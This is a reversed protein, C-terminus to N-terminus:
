AGSGVFSRPKQKYMMFQLQPLSASHVPSYIRSSLRGPEFGPSEVLKLARSSEAKTDIPYYQLTFFISCQEPNQLSLETPLATAQLAVRRLNSEQESCWTTRTAITIAHM